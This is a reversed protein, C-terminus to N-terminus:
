ANFLQYTYYLTLFHTLQDAGIVNWFGQMNKEKYFAGSFRSTVGDTVLHLSFNLAIWGLFVKWDNFIPFTILGLIVAYVVVHKLLWIHSKSKYEAMKSSQFVFDGIYHALFLIFINM